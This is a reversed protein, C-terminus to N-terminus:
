PSTTPILLAAYGLDNQLSTMYAKTNESTPGVLVVSTAHTLKMISGLHEPRWKSYTELNVVTTNRMSSDESEMISPLTCCSHDIQIFDILEPLNTWESLIPAVHDVRLFPLSIESDYRAGKRKYHKTVIYLADHWMDPSAELLTAEEGLWSEQELEKRRLKSPDPVITIQLNPFCESNWPISGVLILETEVRHRKWAERQLMKAFTLRSMWHAHEQPESVNGEAAVFCIVISVVPNKAKMTPIWPPFMSSTHNMDDDGDTNANNDGWWGTSDTLSTNFPIWNYWSSSANLSWSRFDQTWDVGAAGTISTTSNKWQSRKTLETPVLSQLLLTDDIISACFVLALVIALLRVYNSVVLVGVNTM